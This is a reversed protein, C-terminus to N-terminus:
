GAVAVVMGAIGLAIVDVTRDQLGGRRLLDNPYEARIAQRACQFFEGDPATHVPLAFEEPIHELGVGVVRDVEALGRREGLM